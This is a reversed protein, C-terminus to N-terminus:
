IFWFRVVSFKLWIATNDVPYVVDFLPCNEELVPKFVANDGDHCLRKV